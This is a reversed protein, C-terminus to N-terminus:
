RRSRATAASSNPATRASPWRTSTRCRGQCTAARRVVGARPRGRWRCRAAPHLVGLRGADPGGALRTVALDGWRSSGSGATTLMVAYRGNSLLHTVPAGPRGLLRLPARRAPRGGQRQRVAQRGGAPASATAVNRPAREQLLLETAQIIPEAHFRRRMIGDLVADAIAVVTMGQHHAMFARM